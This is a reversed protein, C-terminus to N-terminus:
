KKRCWHKHGDRWVKDQCESGCIAVAGGCTGQCLKFGREVKGCGWCATHVHKLGSCLTLEWIEDFPMSKVSTDCAYGGLAILRYGENPRRSKKSAEAAASTYGTDVGAAGAPKNDPVAVLAGLARHAPWKDTLICKWVNLESDYLFADGLYSFQFSRGSTINM